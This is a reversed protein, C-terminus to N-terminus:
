LVFGSAALRFMDSLGAIYDAHAHTAVVLPVSSSMNVGIRDLYDLIPHRKTRTSRV